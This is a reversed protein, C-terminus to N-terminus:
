SRYIKLFFIDILEIKKKMRVTTKYPTHNAIGGPTPPNQNEIESLSDLDATGQARSRSDESPVL